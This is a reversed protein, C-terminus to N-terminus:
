MKIMQTSQQSRNCLSPIASKSVTKLCYAALCRTHCQCTSILDILDNNFDTVETYSKNCVHPPRINPPPATEANSEDVAIAPNITCVLGDAYDTIQEAAAIPDMQLARLGPSAMYTHVELTNGSLGTGITAGLIINQCIQRHPLLFGTQLERILICGSLQSQFQWGSKRPLEPTCARAV